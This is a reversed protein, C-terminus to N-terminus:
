NIWRPIIDKTIKIITKKSTNYDNQIFKQNIPFPYKAHYPIPITQGFLHVKNHL